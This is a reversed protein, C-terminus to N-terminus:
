RAALSSNARGPGQRLRVAPQAEKRQRRASTCVQFPEAVHGPVMGLDLSQNLQSEVLVQSSAVEGRVGANRFAQRGFARKEAPLGQHYGPRGEKRQQVSGVVDVDDVAVTGSQFGLSDERADPAGGASQQGQLAGRQVDQLSRAADRRVGPAEHVRDAARGADHEIRALGRGSHTQDLLEGHSGAAPGIVAHGKIVGDQDLVVM